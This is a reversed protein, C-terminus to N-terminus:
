QKSEFCNCNVVGCYSCPMKKVKSLMDKIIPDQMIKNARDWFKTANKQQKTQM